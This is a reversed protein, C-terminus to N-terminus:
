QVAANPTSSPAGSLAIPPQQSGYYRAVAHIQEDTLQSAIYNMIQTLDERAGTRFAQLQNVIYGSHQGALYPYLPAAPSADADGHCEVCAQVAPENSGELAVRRGVALLQDNADDPPPSALLVAPRVAFYYASVDKMQQRSLGKVVEQMTPNPRRGSAFDELSQNLYVYSQGALRPFNATTSGEGRLGHCQYCSFCNANDLCAHTGVVVQMGREVSAGDVELQALDQLASQAISVEPTTRPSKSEARRECGMLHLVTALVAAALIPRLLLRGTMHPMTM